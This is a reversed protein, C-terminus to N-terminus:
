IHCMLMITRKDLGYDMKFQLFAYEKSYGSHIMKNYKDRLYHCCVGNVMKYYVKILKPQKKIGNFLQNFTFKPNTKWDPRTLPKSFVNILHIANTPLVNLVLANTPLTKLVLAM